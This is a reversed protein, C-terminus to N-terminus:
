GDHNRTRGGTGSITFLHGLLSMLEFLILKPLNWSYSAFQSAASRRYIRRRVRALFDPSTEREQLPLARIPREPEPAGPNM